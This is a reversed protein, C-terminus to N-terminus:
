KQRRSHDGWQKDLKAFMAAQNICHGARIDTESQALLKLLCLAQRASQLNLSASYSPRNAKNNQV